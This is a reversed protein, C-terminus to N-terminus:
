PGFWLRNSVNDIKTEFKMYNNDNPCYYYLWNLKKCFKHNGQRDTHSIAMIRCSSKTAISSLKDVLNKYYEKTSAEQFNLDEFLLADTYLSSGQEFLSFGRNQIISLKPYKSKLEKFFAIYGETQAKVNDHDQLCEIDDLTDFFVGSYGKDIIRDKIIRLLINQYSKSLIDGGYCSFESKFFKEGNDYLYADEIMLSNKFDDYKEIEVASVYAYLLTGSAKLRSLVDDTASFPHIIALDYASILPIDEPSLVSYYVVFNKISNLQHM